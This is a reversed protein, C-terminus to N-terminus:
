RAPPRLEFWLSGGGPAAKGGMFAELLPLNLLRNANSGYLVTVRPNDLLYAYLLYQEAWYLHRETLWARPMPGPLFIDHVHVFLRATLYPLIRLILHVVDSGTKVTHTSDIFLVDGDQLRDNFFAIDLAQAKEKYLEVGPRDPLFPPPFPEVCLLSGRGNAALAELAILSSFGSGIELVRQPRTRRLMCYYAMADSYGFMTQAWHYRAPKTADGTRPPDFEAAFPQLEALHAALAAADFLLPHSFPQPEEYEFSQEIDALSPVPYYFGSPVLSFGAAELAKRVEPDWVQKRATLLSVLLDTLPAAPPKETV